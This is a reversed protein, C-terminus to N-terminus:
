LLDSYKMKWVQNQEATYGLGDEVQRTVLNYSDGSCDVAVTHWSIFANVLGLLCKEPQEPGFGSCVVLLRGTCVEWSVLGHWTKQTRLKRQRGYVRFTNATFDSCKISPFPLFWGSSRMKVLSSYQLCQSLHTFPRLSSHPSRSKAQKFICPWSSWSLHGDGLEREKGEATTFFFPFPVLHLFVKSRTMKTIIVDSIEQLLLHRLTHHTPTSCWCGNHAGQCPAQGRQIPPTEQLHPRAHGRTVCDHEQSTM